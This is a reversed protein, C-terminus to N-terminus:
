TSEKGWQVIDDWDAQAMYMKEARMPKNFFEALQAKAAASFGTIPRSTLPEVPIAPPVDAACLTRDIFAQLRENPFPKAM